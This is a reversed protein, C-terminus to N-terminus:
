AHAYGRKLLETVETRLADAAIEADIRKDTEEDLEDELRAYDNLTDVIKFAEATSIEPAFTAIPSGNASTLQHSNNYTYKM